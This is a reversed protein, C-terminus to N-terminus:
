KKRSMMKMLMFMTFFNMNQPESQKTNPIITNAINNVMKQEIRTQVKEQISKSKRPKKESMINEMFLPPM